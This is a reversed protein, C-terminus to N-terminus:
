PIWPNRVTVRVRVRARIESRWSQHGVGIGLWPEQRDKSLGSRKGAKGKEEKTNETHSHKTPPTVGVEVRMRTIQDGEGGGAM